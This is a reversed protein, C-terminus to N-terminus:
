CYLGEALLYANVAEPLLGTNDVGAKVNQRIQTSSIDLPEIQALYILGSNQQHLQKFDDTQHAALLDMIDADKNAANLNWGPRYSVVLHCLTLIQAWRYWSKFSLLSDMGMLFCIPTDPLEQRISQLTVLTYSPDQRSLERLDVCFGALDQCALQVMEARQESTAKTGAKHPPKHSPMLRIEALDLQKLIQQAPKLHGFHIPDFTGGLIGIAKHQPKTM